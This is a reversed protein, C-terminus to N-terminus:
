DGLRGDQFELSKSRHATIVAIDAEHWGDVEIGRIQEIPDLTREGYADIIEIVTSMKADHEDEVVGRAQRHGAHICRSRTTSTSSRQLGTRAVVHLAAWCRCYRPALDVSASTECLLHAVELDRNQVAVLLPTKDGNFDPSMPDAFGSGSPDPHAPIRLVMEVELVDESEVAEMFQRYAASRSWSQQDEATGRLRRKQRCCTTM